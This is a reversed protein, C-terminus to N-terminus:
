GDNDYFEMLLKEFTCGKKKSKKIRRKKSIKEVKRQKLMNEILNVEEEKLDVLKKNNSYDNGNDSFNHANKTSTISSEKM